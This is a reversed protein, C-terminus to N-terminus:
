LIRMEGGNYCGTVQCRTGRKRGGQPKTSTGEQPDYMPCDKPVHGTSYCIDCRVQAARDKASEPCERRWHGREGCYICVDYPLLSSDCVSKAQGEYQRFTDTWAQAEIGLIDKLFNTLGASRHPAHKKFLGKFMAYYDRPGKQSRGPGERHAQM